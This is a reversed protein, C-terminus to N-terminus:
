VTPPHFISPTFGACPHVAPFPVSLQECSFSLALPVFTGSMIVPSFESLRIQPPNQNQEHQETKVIIKRVFCQGNCLRDELYVECYKEAIQHQFIGYAGWILLYSNIHLGILFLLLITIIRKM